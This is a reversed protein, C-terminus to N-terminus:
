FLFVRNGQNSEAIGGTDLLGILNNNRAGLQEQGRRSHSIDKFHNMFGLLVAMLLTCGCWLELM